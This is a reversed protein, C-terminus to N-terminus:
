KLLAPMAMIFGLIIVAISFILKVHYVFCASEEGGQQTMVPILYEDKCNPCKM